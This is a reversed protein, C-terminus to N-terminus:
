GRWSAPRRGPATTAASCCRAPWTRRHRARADVPHRARVEVVRPRRTDGDVTLLLHRAGDRQGLAAYAPAGLRLLLRWRPSPRPTRCCRRGAGTAAVRGGAALRHGAPEARGALLELVAWAQGAVFRPAATHLRWRLRDTAAPSARGAGAHGRDAVGPAGRARGRAAERAGCRTRSRPRATSCSTRPSWPSRRTRPAPRSARASTSWSSPAPGAARAATELKRAFPFGAGGRGRM